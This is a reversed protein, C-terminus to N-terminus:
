NLSLDGFENRAVVLYERAEIHVLMANCHSKAIVFRAASAAAAKYHARNSFYKHLLM